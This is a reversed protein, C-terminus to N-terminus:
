LTNGTYISDALIFRLKSDAATNFVVDITHAIMGTNGAITANVEYFATTAQAASSGGGAPSDNYPCYLFEDGVAIARPFPVVPVVSTNDNFTTITRSLGVNAGKTCYLLGGTFDETIDVDSVLVGGSSAVTNVLTNLVTGETAGGCMRAEIILDPRISVTVMGEVAGQVTSYTGSDVALGIADTASTTTCPIIGASTGIITPIGPNAITAGIKMRKHLPAGGCMTGAEIM